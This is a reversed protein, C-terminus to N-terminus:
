RAEGWPFYFRHSETQRWYHDPAKRNQIAVETAVLTMTRINENSFGHEVCHQRISALADGSVVLDDVILLRLTTQKYLTEPIHLHVKNTRVTDFGDFAGGLTSSDNWETIGIFIPIQLQLAEAVFFAIVGGRISGAFIVDPTFEKSLSRALDTAGLTVDTWDLSRLQNKLRAARRGYVITLWLGVVTTIGFFITLIFTLM